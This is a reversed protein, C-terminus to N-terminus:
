RREGQKLDSDEFSKEMELMDYSPKDIDKFHGMFFAWVFLCVFGMAVFLYNFFPMAFGSMGEEMEVMFYSGVKAIFSIGGPIIVFIIMCYAIIKDRKSM